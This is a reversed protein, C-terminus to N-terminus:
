KILNISILNMRSINEAKAGFLDKVEELLSESINNLEELQSIDFKNIDKSDLM